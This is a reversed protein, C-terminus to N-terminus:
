LYVKAMREITEKVKERLELPKLVEVRDQQKLIWFMIGEDGLVELEVIIWNEDYNEKIIKVKPSETKLYHETGKIMKLRVTQKDGTHMSFSSGVFEGVDIYKTSKPLREHSYECTSIRDLRFYVLNEKESDKKRAAMYLYGNQFTITYPIVERTKTEQKSNTYTIVLIKKELIAKFIKRVLDLIPNSQIPNYHYFYSKFFSRIKIQEQSTFLNSLKNSIEQLEHKSLSRTHILIILIMMAENYTLFNGSHNILEYVKDTRNYNIKNNLGSRPNEIVNRMISIDRKLQEISVQYEETLIKLNLPDRQINHWLELVRTQSNVRKKRSNTSTEELAKAVFDAYYPIVNRQYTKWQYKELTTLFSSWELKHSEELSDQEFYEVIFSIPKKSSDVKLVIKKNGQYLKAIVEEAVLMERELFNIYNKNSDNVVLPSAFLSKWNVGNIM